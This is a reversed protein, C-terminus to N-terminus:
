GPSDREHIWGYAQRPTEDDGHAEASQEGREPGLGEERLAEAWKLSLCALSPRFPITEARERLGQGGHEGSVRPETM